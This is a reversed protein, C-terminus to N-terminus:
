RDGIDQTARERLYQELSEVGCSFGARDHDPNLTETILREIV